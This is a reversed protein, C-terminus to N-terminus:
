GTFGEFVGIVYDILPPLVGLVASYASSFIMSAERNHFKVLRKELRKDSM